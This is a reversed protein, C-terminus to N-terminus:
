AFNLSSIFEKESLQFCSLAALDCAIKLFRFGWLEGRLLCVPLRVIAERFVFTVVLSETM